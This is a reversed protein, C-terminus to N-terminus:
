EGIIEELDTVMMIPPIHMGALFISFNKIKIVSLGAAQSLKILNEKTLNQDWLRIHGPYLEAPILRLDRDDVLLFHSNTFVDKEDYKVRIIAEGELGLYDEGVNKVTFNGLKDGVTYSIKETKEPRRLFVFESEVRKFNEEQEYKYLILKYDGSPKLVNERNTPIVAQSGKIAIHHYTIHPWDSITRGNKYCEDSLYCNKSIL